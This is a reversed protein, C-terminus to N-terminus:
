EVFIHISIDNSVAFFFILLFFILSWIRVWQAALIFLCLLPWDTTTPGNVWFFHEINPVSNTACMSRSADDVCYLVIQM